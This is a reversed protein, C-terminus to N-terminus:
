VKTLGAIGAASELHGINTKVSALACAGATLPKQSTENFAAALGALEIPDGLATGTGHAELYTVTGPEINAQKLARKVLESQAKPNPVTYGNTRGGHNVATGKIVGYIHDRDILALSLPKLFVAGVGEGPVFGNGGQGFARCKGDTSLMRALCLSVYRSPHLYLNVGGAIAQQCEGRRIAECALHVATLSSSCATDVPISPGNFNFLYSVRNAISWPLTTPIAGGRRRERALTAYDNSTVGVFVGVNAAYDPRVTRTLDLRTYGADELVSWATELFLREQPDVLEAEIPPINFFLSDFKDVEDLFAGWRGYMKGAAAKEPDPDFFRDIDWREKPIETVCDTGAKLVKWFAHVDNAKPYRGALGIIAIEESQAPSSEARVVPALVTRTEKQSGNGSPGSDVQGAEIGPAFFQGLRSGFAEVLHVSLQRFNAHEFL